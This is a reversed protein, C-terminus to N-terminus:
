QLKVRAFWLEKGPKDAGFFVITGDKDTKLFPYKPDLYFGEGKGFTTLDSVTANKVNLKGLRPYTLLKGDRLGKIEQLLWFLEDPNSGVFLVQPCGYVTTIKTITTYGVENLYNYDVTVGKEKTDLGYQARLKGNSDFQFGLVDEYKNIVHTKNDKDYNQGLVILDGNAAFSYNRVGFERGNYDPTKKQSPPFVQKAKFDELTTESLYVMKGGSVKMLQVARYKVEGGGFRTGAGDNFYKDRGAMAPGYFYYDNGNTIMEDIRWYSAPSTFTFREVVNANDDVRIYSFNNNKPDANKKGM